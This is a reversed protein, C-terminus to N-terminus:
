PTEHYEQVRRLYTTPDFNPSRAPTHCRLCEVGLFCHECDGANRGTSDPCDPGHCAECQVGPHIASGALQPGTAHCRLCSPNTQEAGSLSEMAAAHFSDSWMAHVAQHCRACAGAGRYGTDPRDAIFLLTGPRSRAPPPSADNKVVPFACGAVALAGALVWRVYSACWGPLSSTVAAPFRTVAPVPPPERRCAHM